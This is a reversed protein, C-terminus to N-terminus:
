WSRNTVRKWCFADMWIFGKFLSKLVARCSLELQEMSTRLNTWTPRPQQFPTIVSNVLYIVIWCIAAPMPEKTEECTDVPYRNIRHIANDLREVVPALVAFTSDKWVATCHPPSPLFLSQQILTPDMIRIGHKIGPGWHIPCERVHNWILIHPM